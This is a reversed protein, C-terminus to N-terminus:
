ATRRTTSGVPPEPFDTQGARGITNTPDTPSGQYTDATLRDAFWDAVRTHKDHSHNYICHDGDAWELFTKDNSAAADYLARANEILFVQDPTGHLVLLACTLEKLQDETLVFTQLAEIAKAPDELGLLPQVKSVFRSFRDLIEAPRNTGGNVCCAAIRPDTAAVSAALFGGMSNGWIGVKDSLREDHSLHDVMASFAATFDQDLVLGGFLRSEGQGPGDALFTAVGREHLYTAGVHYEERWGDFGGMIIVLPWGQAPGPGAPLALWGSLTGGHHAIDLHEFPPDFLEGAHGYANIM